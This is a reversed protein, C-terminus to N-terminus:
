GPAPKARAKRSRSLFSLLLGMAVFVIGMVVGGGRAGAHTGPSYVAVIAVVGTVIWGLNITWQVVDVLAAGVLAVILAPVTLPLWTWTSHPCENAIEQPGGSQCSGVQTLKWVCLEFLTVGAVLIMAGILKKMLHRSYEVSEFPDLPPM